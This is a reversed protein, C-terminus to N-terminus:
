NKKCLMILTDTTLKNVEDAYDLSFLITKDYITGNGTVTVAYDKSQVTLNRKYPTLFIQKGKIQAQTAYVPGLLSNFTLLARDQNVHIIDLAGIEDSLVVTDEDVIVSGSIKYSYAGSVQQVQDQCSVLSVACLALISIFVCLKKM